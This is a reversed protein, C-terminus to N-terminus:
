EIIADLIKCLDEKTKSTYYVNALWKDAERFIAKDSTSTKKSRKQTDADYAYFDKDTRWQIRCRKHAPSHLIGMMENNKQSRILGFDEQQLVADLSTDSKWYQPKLVINEM